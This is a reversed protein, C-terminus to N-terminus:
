VKAMVVVFHCFANEIVDKDALLLLSQALFGKICGCLMNVQIEVVLLGYFRM